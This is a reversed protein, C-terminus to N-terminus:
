RKVIAMGIIVFMQLFWTIVLTILVSDIKKQKLVEKQLFRTEESASTLDLKAFETFCNEYEKREPTGGRRPPLTDGYKAFGNRIKQELETYGGLEKLADAIQLAYRYTKKRIVLMFIIFFVIAAWLSIAAIYVEGHLSIELAELALIAASLCCLFIKNM